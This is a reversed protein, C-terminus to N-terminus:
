YRKRFKCFKIKKKAIQLDKKTNISFLNSKIEITGINFNNDIARLLEVGENIENKTKKLECYKILSKKKFCIFDLHKKLFSKKQRFFFPIDSRSLYIIKGKGNEVMKVINKDGYQIINSHPIVIDYSNKEHFKIVKDLHEPNLFIEDCQIDVITESKIYKAVECIRETGNRHMSSTLVAKGGFRNVVNIISKDDACVIVEDLKKSLLARKLVHVVLPLGDIKILPKGPLRQSNLRAPILGTIM